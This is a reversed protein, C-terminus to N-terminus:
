CQYVPDNQVQASESVGRTLDKEHIAAICVIYRYRSDSPDEFIRLFQFVVHELFPCVIPSPLPCRLSHSRLARDDVYSRSRSTACSFVSYQVVRSTLHGFVVQLGLGVYIVAYSAAAKKSLLVQFTHESTTSLGQLPGAELARHVCALCDLYRDDSSRELPGYCDFCQQM